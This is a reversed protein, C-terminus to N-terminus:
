HYDTIEINTVKGAPSIFTPAMYWRLDTGTNTFTHLVGNTAIEWNAGGNATLLINFSGSTITATLKAQTITGNNYDISTSYAVKTSNACLLWKNTTDWDASTLVTDKFDTDYFTEEYSNDYQQIFANTEAGFATASTGWKNNGTGLTCHDSNDYILVKNADVYTETMLKRYRPESHVPRDTINDMTVLETVIDQNKWSDEEIRKLKEEVKAQWEALRWYKDGVELEDYETPYRIRHRNIMLWSDVAPSSISDVVRIMQGVNLGYTSVNKVRLTTYIFPTSYKVLYNTGRNEADTVTRIDTFTVTKRFQGYTTISTQNWMHVPIPAALSYRIEYYDDTTFTTGGKPFLKKQNKDVYYNYTATSDPTGGVKLTTPPNAADGYVKVSIPEYSIAIDANTYGATTGIRGSETTEVEQYAGVITVDNVMETIDYNWKPVQLINSGVTLTNANTVYGKPEFHVTNNASDYYIQWDLIEALKKCREFIDTHNCVFKDIILTTGSDQMDATLGGYTEVLDEFIESIKGASADIDKDYTHTVEKRVLDWAKDKGTIKIVGGEVEYKEIYGDFVKEETALAWGRWLELTQGNALTVASTITKLVKISVQAIADGYVREIEWNVIYDDVNVGNIESEQLM